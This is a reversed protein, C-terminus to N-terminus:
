YIISRLIILNIFRVLCHKRLIDVDSAELIASFLSKWQGSTRPPYLAASVGIIELLKDFFIQGNFEFRMESIRETVHQHYPFATPPFWDTFVPVSVLEEELDLSGNYITEEM